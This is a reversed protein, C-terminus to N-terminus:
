GQVERVKKEWLTTLLHLMTLVDVPDKDEITPILESVWFPISPSDMIWNRLATATKPTNM